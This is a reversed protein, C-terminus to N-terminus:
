LYRPCASPAKFATPKEALHVPRHQEIASVLRDARRDQVVVSASKELRVFERTVVGIEGLDHAHLRHRAEGPRFSLHIALFSGSWRRRTM